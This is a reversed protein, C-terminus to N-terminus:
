APLSRAITEKVAAQAELDAVTTYDARNGGHVDRDLTQGYYRMHVAGAARAAEEAVRRRLALDDHLRM